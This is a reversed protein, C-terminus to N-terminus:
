HSRAQGDYVGRDMKCDQEYSAYVSVWVRWIWGVM